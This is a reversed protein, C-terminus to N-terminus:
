IAGSTILCFPYPCSISQHDNPTIMNSIIIPYGGNKLSDDVSVQLFINSQFFVKFILGSAFILLSASSINLFSIVSGSFRNPTLPASSILDCGKKLPM